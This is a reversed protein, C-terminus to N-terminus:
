PERELGMQGLRTHPPVPGEQTQQAPGVRVWCGARPSRVCSLSYFCTHTLVLGAHADPSPRTPVELPSLGVLVKQCETVSCM